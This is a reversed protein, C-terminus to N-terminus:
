VCRPRTVFAVGQRRRRCLAVWLWRKQEKSGVFSYPEDLELIDGPRGPILSTKLAPLRQALHPLLLLVTQLSVSFLRAIARRLLRERLAREIFALMSKDRRPVLVRTKHCDHCLCRQSGYPTHGNKVINTSHCTPCWHVISTVIM